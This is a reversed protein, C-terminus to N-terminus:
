KYFSPFEAKPINGGYARDLLYVVIAPDGIESKEVGVDTVGPIALLSNQNPAIGTRNTVLNLM